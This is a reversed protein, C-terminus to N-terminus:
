QRRRDAAGGVLEVVDGEIGVVEGGLEALWELLAEDTQGTRVLVRIPLGEAGVAQLLGIADLRPLTLDTVIVDPRLRRAYALAQEGDAAELVVMGDAVLPDAVARRGARTEDVVLVRPAGARPTVPTRAVV